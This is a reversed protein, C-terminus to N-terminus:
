YVVAELAMMHHARVAVRFHCEGCHELRAGARTRGRLRVSCGAVTRARGRNTEISALAWLPDDRGAIEGMIRKADRM